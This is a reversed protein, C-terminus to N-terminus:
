KKGGKVKIPTNRLDGYYLINPDDIWVTGFIMACERGDEAEPVNFEELAAPRPTPPKVRTAHSILLSVAIMIIQDWGM